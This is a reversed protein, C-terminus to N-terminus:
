KKLIDALIFFVLILQMKKLEIQSMYYNYPSTALIQKTEFNSICDYLGSDFYAQLVLAQNLPDQMLKERNAIIIAYRISEMTEYLSTFGADNLPVETYKVDLVDFYHTYDISADAWDFTRTSNLIANKLRKRKLYTFDILPDAQMTEQYTEYEYKELAPFLGQKLFRAYVWEIVDVIRPSVETKFPVLKNLHEQDCQIGYPLYNIIDEVNVLCGTRKVHEIHEKETVNSRVEYKDANDLGGVILLGKGRLAVDLYVSYSTTIVCTSEDILKQLELHQNLLVLNHPLQGDTIEHIVQYIHDRNWHTRNQKDSLLWRPKIVVKYDPYKSCVQLLMNAIQTKGHHGFPIHGADVYLIQKAKNITRKPPSDNKPNGIPMTACEECKRMNRENCITFMFDSGETPWSDVFIFNYNFVYIDAWRLVNMADTGCFAIDYSNIKKLTLRNAPQVKIGLELFMRVSKNDLFRGYIDVNHGRKLFEKVVNQISLNTADM